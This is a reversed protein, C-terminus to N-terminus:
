LAHPGLRPSRGSKENEIERLLDSGFRKRVFDLLDAAFRPATEYNISNGRAWVNNILEEAYGKLVNRIPAREDRLRAQVDSELSNSSHKLQGEIRLREMREKAETEEEAQPRQQILKEKLLAWSTTTLPGYFQMANQFSSMNNLTNPLLPPSFETFCRQEIDAVGSRRVFM